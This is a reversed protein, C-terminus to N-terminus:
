KKEAASHVTSMFQNVVYDVNFKMCKIGNPCKWLQGNGIVDMMFTDPRNCHLNPCTDKMELNKNCTYGLNQQNTGGWLVVADKKGLAVWAHQLMSDITLAFQCKELLAFIHRTNMVQNDPLNMCRALRKETPLGIQLVMLKAEILKDVIEQAIEFPLDRYHKIRSPDQAQEPTYSSTGGVHQFAVIPRDIKGPLLIANAVQKEQDDITLYGRKETPVDLGLRKCWAEVLHIKGQRYELDLYPETEMVEFNKHEDYFYPYAQLPFVKAVGDMNIFVDPYSAQVHIIADPYKFKIQQVIATGIINKGVGGNCRFLIEKM